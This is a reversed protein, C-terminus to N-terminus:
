FKVRLLSLVSIFGLLQLESIFFGETVFWCACAMFLFTVQGVPIPSGMGFYGMSCAPYWTATDLHLTVADNFCM